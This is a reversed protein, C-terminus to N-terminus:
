KLIPHLKKGRGEWKVEINSIYWTSGNTCNGQYFLYTRGDPAEFIHPHGSESSNWSGEPGNALFPEDWLREWNVGDDSVAVGIQQPHNNYAGAYFMFLRGGREIVSAGEICEQEWPLEPELISADKALTWSGRSFDTDGDAVAVGQLQRKFEPDRTAFYLYYRGKFKYVEADIARGCSWGSPEPAFIPNSPDGTFNLGDTSTAHCIADKEWRGYSQYFLHVKGDIVRACPACFGLKEPESLPEPLVEGAKEWHILDTSTAIGITWGPIKSAVRGLPDPPYAGRDSVTDGAAAPPMSYYLFYRDKFYVVHPDKSMPSGTRTSDSFMMIEQQQPAESHRNCSCVLLTGTLLITLLRPIFAM